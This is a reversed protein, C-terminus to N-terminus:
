SDIHRGYSMWIGQGHVEHFGEAELDSGLGGEMDHSRKSKGYCVFSGRQLSFWIRFQKRCSM